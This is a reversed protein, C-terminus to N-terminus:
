KYPGIRRSFMSCPHGKWLHLCHCSKVIKEDIHMPCYLTKHVSYCHIALKKCTSYQWLWQKCIHCAGACYVSLRAEVGNFLTFKYFWDTRPLPLQLGHVFLRGFIFFMPPPQSFYCDFCNLRLLSFSLTLILTFTCLLSKGSSLIKESPKWGTKLLLSFLLM